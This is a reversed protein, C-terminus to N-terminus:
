MKQGRRYRCSRGKSGARRKPSKTQTPSTDGEGAGDMSADGEPNMEPNSSGFRNLRQYKGREVPNRRERVQQARLAAGDDSKETMVRRKRARDERVDGEYAGGDQGEKHTKDEQVVEQAEEAQRGGQAKDHHAADEYAGVEHVGVEYVGDEHAEDGHARNERGNERTQHEHGRKQVGHGQGREQTEPEYAEETLRERQGNM